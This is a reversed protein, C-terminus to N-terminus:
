ANVKAAMPISVFRGDKEIQDCIIDTDVYWNLGGAKCLDAFYFDDTIQSQSHFFRLLHDGNATTYEEPALRHLSGLRIVTFGTGTMYVKEVGADQWDEWAGNGEAKAVIPEPPNTRRPYVGGLIDIEPRQKITALMRMAVNRERPVVDDDWFFLFENGRSFAALIAANRADVTSLGRVELYQAMSNLPWTQTYFMRAWETRVLGLTCVGVAYKM